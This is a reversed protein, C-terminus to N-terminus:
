VTFQCCIKRHPRKFYPLGLHPFLTKFYGKLFFVKSFHLQVVIWNIHSQATLFCKWGSNRWISGSVSGLLLWLCRFHSCFLKNFFWPHGTSIWFKPTLATNQLSQSMVCGVGWRWTPEHSHGFQLGNSQCSHPPAHCELGHQMHLPNFFFSTSNGREEREDGGWDPGTPSHLDKCLCIIQELDASHAKSPCIHFSSAPVSHHCVADRLASCSHPPARPLFWSGGRTPKPTACYQTVELWISCCWLQSLVLSLCCVVCMKVTTSCGCEIVNYQIKVYARPFTIKEVCGESLTNQWKLNKRKNKSAIVLLGEVSVFLVRAKMPKFPPSTM